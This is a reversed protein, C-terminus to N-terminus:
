TCKFGRYHQIDMNACTGSIWRLYTSLQQEFPQHHFLRHLLLLWYHRINDYSSDGYWLWLKWLFHFCPSFVSSYTTGFWVLKGGFFMVFGTGGQDPARFSGDTWYVHPLLHCPRGCPNVLISALEVLCWELHAFNLPYSSVFSLEIYLIQILENSQRVIETKVEKGQLIM